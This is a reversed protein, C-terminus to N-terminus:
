CPVHSSPTHWRCAAPQLLSVTSSSMALAGNASYFTSRSRPSDLTETCDFVPQLQRAAMCLAYDYPHHGGGDGCQLDGRCSRTRQCLFEYRLSRRRAPDHLGGTNGPMLMASGQTISSWSYTTEGSAAQGSDPNGLRSVSFSLTLQSAAAFRRLYRRAAVGLCRGPPSRCYGM